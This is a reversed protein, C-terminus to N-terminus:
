KEIKAEKQTQTCNKKIKIKGSVFVFFFLALHLLTFFETDYFCFVEERKAM